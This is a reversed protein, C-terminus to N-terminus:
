WLTQLCLVVVPASHYIQTAPLQVNFGATNNPGAVLAPLFEQLAQRFFYALGDCAMCATLIKQRDNIVTFQKTVIVATHHATGCSM